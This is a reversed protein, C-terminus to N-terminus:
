FASTESSIGDISCCRGVRGVREGHKGLAAKVTIDIVSGSALAVLNDDMNVCRDERIRIRGTLRDELATRANGVDRRRAHSAVRTIM